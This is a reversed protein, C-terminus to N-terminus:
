DSPPSNVRGIVIETGLEAAFCENKTKRGLAELAMLAREQGRHSGRWLKEGGPFVEFLDYEPEM